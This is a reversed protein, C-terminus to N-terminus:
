CVSGSSRAKAATPPWVGLIDRQGDVTVGIACSFARNAVQGDRVKVHIADIFLVPYVRDLPRAFWGNMDGVIADTIKSITERPVAIDYVEALHASIEGTTLGKACLSIVMADVGDLRRQRKRVTMPRYSGDRDRPVEIEVQPHRIQTRAHQVPTVHQRSRLPGSAAVSVPHSTEVTEDPEHDIQQHQAAVPITGLIGLDEHQTMLERDQATLHRARGEFGVVARDEGRERTPEATVAPRHKQHLGVRQQTPMSTEDRVVPAVRVPAASGGGRGFGALQDHTECPLVRRPSVPTDVTLEGSEAGGDRCRGHPRDELV